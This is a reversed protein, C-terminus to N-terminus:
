IVCDPSSCKATGRPNYGGKVEVGDEYGDGDTDKNLPNTGYKLVEDGDNLEDGDTDAKGPDLGLEIEREDNLGDNDTDPKAM